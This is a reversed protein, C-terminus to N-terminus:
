WGFSSVFNDFGKSVAKGIKDVKDNVKKMGKDFNDAWEDSMDKLGLFNSDYMKNAIFGSAVAVGAIAGGVPNSGLLLTGGVTLWTATVTVAGNHSIAQGISSGESTDGLMGITFGVVLLGVNELMQGAAYSSAQSKAQGLYMDISM